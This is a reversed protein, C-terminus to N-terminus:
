LGFRVLAERLRIGLFVVTRVFRPYRDQYHKDYFRRMVEFRAALTRTGVVHGKSSGKFHWISVQPLYMVKFGLNKIRFCLDLDEGKWFFNEDFWGLKEGLNRPLMFYAGNIADVEHPSDWDLYGLTYGSFLRSQSFIRGLGSFYCFANWPTPSGRHCTLDVKGDALVLKGSVAGVDSHSKLYGLPFSIADAQLKTDPNLFLVFSGAARKAAINNAKAFGLNEKELILTLGKRQTLYAVTGDTSANDIVMVEWERSKIKAFNHQYIADLCVPLEAENNYTVIIISLEVETRRKKM